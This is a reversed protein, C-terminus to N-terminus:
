NKNEIPESSLKYNHIEGGFKKISKVYFLLKNIDTPAKAFKIMDIEDLLINIAKTIELDLNTKRLSIILEKTTESTAYLSLEKYILEKFIETLESLKKEISKRDDNKKFLIMELKALFMQYPPINESNKNQKKNMIYKYLYYYIVLAIILILFILLIIKFYFSFYFPFKAQEKEKKLEISTPDKINKIADLKEKTLPNEVKINYKESYLYLMEGNSQSIPITFYFDNYEGSEFFTFVIEIFLNKNKYYNKKSITEVNNNTSNMDEWLINVNDLNQLVITLNIQEGIKINTKSIKEKGISSLYFIISLFFLSFYIKKLIFM